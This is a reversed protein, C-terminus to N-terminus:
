SVVPVSQYQEDNSKATAPDIRPVGVEGAGQMELTNMRCGCHVRPFFSEDSFMAALLIHRFIPRM